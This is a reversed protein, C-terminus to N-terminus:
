NWGHNDRPDVVALDFTQTLSEEGPDLGEGAATVTVSGGVYREKMTLEDGAVTYKEGDGGTIDWTYTVGSTGPLEELYFDGHYPILVGVEAYLSDFNGIVSKAPDLPGESRNSYVAFTVKAGVKGTSATATAGAYGTEDQGVGGTAVVSITKGYYDINDLTLTEGSGVVENDAYWTYTVGVVPRRNDAASATLVDAPRNGLKPNQVGDFTVVDSADKKTASSELSVTYTGQVKATAPEATVNFKGDPSEAVVSITYNKKAPALVTYTSGEQPDGVVQNNADKLTWTFILSSDATKLNSKVSLTDGVQPTTNSLTLSSVEAVATGEDHHWSIPDDGTEPYESVARPGTIARYGGNTVVEVMYAAVPPNDYQQTEANWTGADATAPIYDAATAGTIPVFDSTGIKKYWQYGIEADDPIVSASLITRGPIFEGIHGVRTDTGAVFIGDSEPCAVLQTMMATPESAAQKTYDGKGVAVAILKHGVVSIANGDKDYWNGEDLTAHHAAHGPYAFLQNEAKVEDKYWNLKYNSTAVDKDNIKVSDVHFSDYDGPTTTSTKSVAVVASSIDAKVSVGRATFKVDDSTTVKAYLSCGEDAKKVTYTAATAGSIAANVGDGDRYWQYKADPDAANDPKTFQVALTEGEIATAVRDGATNVIIGATPLVGNVVAETPETTYTRTVVTGDSNKWTLEATLTKGFDEDVVRYNVWKAGNIAKGDAYWQISFDLDGVRYGTIRGEDDKVAVLAEYFDYVDAYETGDANLLAVLHMRDNVVPASHYANRNAIKFGYDAETVEETETSKLTKGRVKVKVYLAKGLDVEVPTYTSTTANAIPNDGGSIDGTRYWQYTIGSTIEKGNKDYVAATLTRGVKADGSIEVKAAPAAVKFKVWKSWSSKKGKIAKVKVKYNGVPLNKFAKKTKTVNVTQKKAGTPKVKYKTAGKFKTWTVTATTGSVKAKVGTVKKSAAFAQGSLLPMFAVACAVMLAIALVKSLQKKEFVV